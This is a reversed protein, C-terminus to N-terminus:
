NRRDGIIVFKVRVINIDQLAIHLMALFPMVPQIWSTTEQVLLMKVGLATPELFVCGKDQDPVQVEVLFVVLLGNVGVDGLQHQLHLLKYANTQLLNHILAIKHKKVIKPANEELVNEIEFKFVQLKLFHCNAHAGIV